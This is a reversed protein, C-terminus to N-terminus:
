LKLSRVLHNDRVAMFNDLRKKFSNLNPASVVEETLVNWYSSIRNKFFNERHATNRNTLPDKVIRKSHGRLNIQNEVSSAVSIPSVFKVIENGNLIKYYQILDGRIRRFELTTLGLIELREEYKM